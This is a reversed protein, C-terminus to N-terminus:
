AGITVEVRRGLAEIAALERDILTTLRAREEASLGDRLASLTDMVKLLVNLYPLAGTVAYAREFLEALRLYRGLDKHDAKDIARFKEDYGGHIRKTVEFKRVLAALWARATAGPTEDNQLAAMLAELLSATDVRSGPAPLSENTPAPAPAPARADAGAALRDDRWAQLFDAGGFRSYFYTHPTELLPGRAYPYADSM